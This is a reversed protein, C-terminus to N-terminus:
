DETWSQHVHILKWEDNKLSFVYTASMPNDESINGDKDVVSYTGTFVYVAHEPSLVAVYDKEINFNNGSRSEPSPKWTEYIAEKTPLLYLMNIWLAPNNIWVEDDSEIWVDMFKEFNEQNYVKLTNFIQQTQQKIATAVEERQEITMKKEEIPKCACTLAIIGIIMLLHKM